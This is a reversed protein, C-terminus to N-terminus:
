KSVQANCCGKVDVSVDLDFVDPFKENLVEYFSCIGDDFAMCNECRSQHHEKFGSEEPTVYLIEEGLIDALPTGPIYLYCTSDEFVELEPGHIWCTQGTWFPCTSCQAFEESGDTPELYLFVSRDLKVGEQDIVRVLEVPKSM